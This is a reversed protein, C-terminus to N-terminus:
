DNLIMTYTKYIRNFTWYTSRGYSVWFRTINIKEKMNLKIRITSVYNYVNQSYKNHVTNKTRYKYKYYPNILM